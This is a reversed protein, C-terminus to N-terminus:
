RIRTKIVRFPIFKKENENDIQEIETCMHFITDTINEDATIEFTDLLAKEFGKIGDSSDLDKFYIDTKYQPKICPLTPGLLNSALEIPMCLDKSSSEQVAKSLQLQNIEQQKHKNMRSEQKFEPWVCPIGTKLCRGCSPKLEDCRRKRRKCEKCGKRSRSNIGLRMNETSKSNRFFANHNKKGKDTVKCSLDSKDLVSMNSDLDLTAFM